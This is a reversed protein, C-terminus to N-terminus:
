GSPSSSGGGTPLNLILSPASALEQVSVHGLSGLIVGFGLMAIVAMSAARPTPLRPGLPTRWNLREPPAEEAAEPEPEPETLPETVPEAVITPRGREYLAGLTGAVRPSLEGRRAGCAMCYRQGPEISSGCEGCSLPAPSTRVASAM